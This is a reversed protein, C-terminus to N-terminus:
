ERMMLLNYNNEEWTACNMDYTAQVTKVQQNKNRTSDLESEQPTDLRRGPKTSYHIDEAGQTHVEQEPSDTAFLDENGPSYMIDLDCTLDDNM